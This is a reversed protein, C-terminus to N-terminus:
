FDGTDSMIKIELNDFRGYATKCGRNGRQRILQVVPLKGIQVHLGNRKPNSEVGTLFGSLVISDGVEFTKSTPSRGSPGETFVTVPTGLEVDSTILNFSADKIARSNRNCNGSNTVMRGQLNAREFKVSPARATYTGWSSAYDVPIVGRSSQARRCSFNTTGGSKVEIIATSSSFDCKGNTSGCECSEFGSESIPLKIEGRVCQTPPCDESSPTVVLPSDFDISFRVTNLDDDQEATFSVGKRGKCSEWANVISDSATVILSEQTTRLSEDLRLKECAKRYRNSSMTASLPIGSAIMAFGTDSSNVSKNCMFRAMSQRSEFTASVSSTDFIGDELIADCQDMASAISSM